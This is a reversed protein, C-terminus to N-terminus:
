RYGFALCCSIACELNEFELIMELKLKKIIYKNNSINLQINNKYKKFFIFKKGYFIVKNGQEVLKNKLNSINKIRSNIIAIGDKNLYKTFLKLKAKKYKSITKHYDLHDSSINTIAAIHIPYNRIRNQDLAHSSLEFIYIHKKKKSSGYKYLEEYAPTTLNTDNIKKSKKFHGLTGVSTYNYNLTHLIKSIYWVVSTKGNTGTVAISKYPLQKYINELLLETEKKIDEVIFQPIDLFNFYTNSIIAPTKNKIAELIYKKKANSNKDYIFM